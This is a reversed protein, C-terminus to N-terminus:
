LTPTPSPSQPNEFGSPERSKRSALSNGVAAQALCDRPRLM